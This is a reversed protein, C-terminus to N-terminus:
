IKLLDASIEKINLNGVNNIIHEKFCTELVIPGTLAEDHQNMYIGEKVNLINDRRKLAM